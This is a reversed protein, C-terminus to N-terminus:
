CLCWRMMYTFFFMIHNKVKMRKVFDMAPQDLYGDDTYLALAHGIFDITDDGLGYKRSLILPFFM